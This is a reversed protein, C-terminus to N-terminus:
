VPTRTVGPVTQMINRPSSLSRLSPTLWLHAKDLLLDGYKVPASTVATQHSWLSHKGGEFSTRQPLIDSSTYYTILLSNNQSKRSKDVEHRILNRM